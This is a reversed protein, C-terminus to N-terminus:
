HGHEEEEARMRPTMAHRIAAMEDMQRQDRRNQVVAMAEQKRHVAQRLTAVRLEAQLLQERAADERRLRDAIVLRQMDMAEDLRAMFRHHHLMLEPLVSIRAQSEWRQETEQAYGSLQALQEEAALRRQQAQGLAQSAADRRREALEIALALTKLLQKSM